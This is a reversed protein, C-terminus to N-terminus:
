WVSLIIHNILVCLFCCYIKICVNMYMFCLIEKLHLVGGERHIEINIDNESTFDGSFGIEEEFQYETLINIISFFLFSFCYFICLFVPVLLYTLFDILCIIFNFLLFPIFILIRLPLKACTDEKELISKIYEEKENIIKKNQFDEKQEPLIKVEKVEIKATNLEFKEKIQIGNMEKYKCATLKETGMVITKQNEVKELANSNELM